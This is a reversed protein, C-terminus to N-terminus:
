DQRRRRGSARCGCRGPRATCGSRHRSPRCPLARRATPVAYVAPLTYRVALALILKRHIAALPGSTVIMGDSPSRVFAAVNREIDAADRVSLPVLEVRLTPAIAQLVAFQAVAATLGPERLVAVRTVHPAIKRQAAGAMQRPWFAIAYSLNYNKRAYVSRIDENNKRQLAQPTLAAAIAARKYDRGSSFPGSVRVGLEGLVIEAFDIYPKTYRDPDTKRKDSHHSYGAIQGCYKEFVAPLMRGALAEFASLGGANSCHESVTLGGIEPLDDWFGPGPSNDALLLQRELRVRLESAGVEPPFLREVRRIASLQREVQKRKKTWRKGADLFMYVLLCSNLEDWTADKLRPDLHETDFAEHIRSLAAEAEDDLKIHAAIVKSPPFSV